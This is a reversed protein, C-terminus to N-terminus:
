FSAQINGYCGPTFRFDLIVDLIDVAEHDPRVEGINKVIDFGYDTVPVDFDGQHFGLIVCNKIALISKIM